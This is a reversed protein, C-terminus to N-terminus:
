ARALLYSVYPDIGARCIKTADIFLQRQWSESYLARDTIGIINAGPATAHRAFSLPQRPNNATRNLEDLMKKTFGYPQLAKLMPKEGGFSKEIGEMGKYYEHLFYKPNESADLFHILSMELSPDILKDFGDFFTREVELRYPETGLAVFTNDELRRIGQEGTLRFVDFTVVRDVEPCVDFFAAEPAFQNMYSHYKVRSMYIIFNGLHNLWDYKGARLANEDEVFPTMSNKAFLVAARLKHMTVKCPEVIMRNEWNNSRTGDSRHWEEIPLDYEANFITTRAVITVTPDVEPWGKM